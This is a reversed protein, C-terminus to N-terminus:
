TNDLNTFGDNQPGFDALSKLGNKLSFSASFPPEAPTNSLPRRIEQQTQRTPLLEYDKLMLLSCDVGCSELIEIARSFNCNSSEKGKIAQGRKLRSKM